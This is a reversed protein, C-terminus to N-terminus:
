GRRGAIQVVLAGRRFLRLLRGPRVHMWETVLAAVEELDRELEKATRELQTRYPDLADPPNERLLEHQRRFQRLTTVAHRGFTVLEAAMALRVPLQFYLTGDLDVLWADHVRM